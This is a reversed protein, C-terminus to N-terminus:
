WRGTGKGAPDHDTPLLEALGDHWVRSVDKIELHSKLHTLLLYACGMGHPPAGGPVLGKALAPGATGLRAAPSACTCLQVWGSCLPADGGWWGM